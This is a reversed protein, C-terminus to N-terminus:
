VSCMSGLLCNLISVQSQSAFDPWIVATERAAKTVILFYPMCATSSGPLTQVVYLRITLTNVPSLAARVLATLLLEQHPETTQRPFTVLFATQVIREAHRGTIKWLAEQPAGTAVPALIEVDCTGASKLLRRAAEEAAPDVTLVATVGGPAVEIPSAQDSPDSPRANGSDAGGPLVPSRATNTFHSIEIICPSVLATQTTQKVDLLWASVHFTGESACCCTQIHAQFDRPVESTQSVHHGRNSASHQLYSASPLPSCEENPAGDHAATSCPTSIGARKFPQPALLKSLVAGVAENPGTIRFSPWHSRDEIVAASLM